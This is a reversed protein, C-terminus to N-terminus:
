AGNRVEREAREFNEKSYGCAPAERGAARDEDTYKYALAQKRDFDENSYSVPKPARKPAEVPALDIDAGGCKPCGKDGFSAKQAAAITKFKHGCEMCAFGSM